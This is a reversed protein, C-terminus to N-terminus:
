ERQVIQESGIHESHLIIDFIDSVRSLLLHLNLLIEFFNILKPINSLKLDVSVLVEIERAGNSSSNSLMLFRELIVHHSKNLHECSAANSRESSLYLCFKVSEALNLLSKLLPELDHLLPHTQYKDESTTLNGFLHRLLGLDELVGIGLPLLNHLPYGLLFQDDWAALIIEEQTCKWLHLLIKLITLSFKLSIEFLLSADEWTEIEAGVRIEKLNKRNTSVGVLNLVIEFLQEISDASNSEIFDITSEDSGDVL